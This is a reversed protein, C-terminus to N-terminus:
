LENIFCWIKFANFKQLDFELVSHKTMKQQLAKEM